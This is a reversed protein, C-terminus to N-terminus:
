SSWSKLTVIFGVLCMSVTASQSVGAASAEIATTTDIATSPITGKQAIFSAVQLSDAAEKSAGAAQLQTVMETQLSTPDAKLVNVATEIAAGKGAPASVLFAVDWSGALRRLSGELRRSETAEVTVASEQVEFQKALTKQVATQVQTKTVGTASFSVSGDYQVTSIQDGESIPVGQKACSEALTKMDAGQEMGLLQSQGAVDIINMNKCQM